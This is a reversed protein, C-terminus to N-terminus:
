LGNRKSRIENLKNRLIKNEDAIVKARWRLEEYREECKNWGEEYGKNYVEMKIDRFYGHEKYGM